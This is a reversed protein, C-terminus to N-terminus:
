FFVLYISGLIFSHLVRVVCSTYQLQLLLLLLLLCLTSRYWICVKAVPRAAKSDAGKDEGRGTGRDADGRKSKLLESQGKEHVVVDCLPQEGAARLYHGLHETLLLRVRRREPFGAGTVVQRFFWLLFFARLACYTNVSMDSGSSVLLEWKTKYWQYIINKKPDQASSKARSHKWLIFLCVEGPISPSPQYGAFVHVHIADDARHM